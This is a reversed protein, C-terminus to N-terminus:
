SIIFHWIVFSKRLNLVTQKTKQKKKQLCLRARNGPVLSSHLPAIKAWQLWRRGSELSERAEAERTAPVVPTHRWARSIKQLKLLSPTEDHQGPHDRNGSRKIRRGWGGSTSPNYPHAVAGPGLCTKTNKWRMGIPHNIANSQKQTSCQITCAM